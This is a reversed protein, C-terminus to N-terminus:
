GKRKIVFGIIFGFRATASLLPLTLVAAHAHDHGHAVALHLPTSRNNHVIGVLVRRTAITCREYRWSLIMM